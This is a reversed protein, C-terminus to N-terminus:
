RKAQELAMEMIKKFKKNSWTAGSIADVKGVDQTEILMQGYSRAGKLDDRCQQQYLKNGVYVEEYTEDFLRDNRPRDYINWEVKVIQDNAITINAKCYYGEGDPKDQVAYVGDKYRTSASPQLVSPTLAVVQKPMTATIQLESGRKDVPIAPSLRSILEELTAEGYYRNAASFSYHTLILTQANFQQMQAIEKDIPHQADGHGALLAVQANQVAAQIDPQTILGEAGMHVIKIAGIEFVFVRNTSGSKPDGHDGNYGTIKVMGVQYTGPANIIQPTGTLAKVNNHDPHSHSITVANAEVNAPFEGLEKPASRYPDTVIRTGDPATLVICEHGIYQLTVVDEAAVLTPLFCGLSFILASVLLMVHSRMARM